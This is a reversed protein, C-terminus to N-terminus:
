SIIAQNSHKDYILERINEMVDKDIKITNYLGDVQNATAVSHKHQLCYISFGHEPHDKLESFVYDGVKLKPRDVFDMIMECLDNLTTEQNPFTPIVHVVKFTNDHYILLDNQHYEFDNFISDEVKQNLNQIRKVAQKLMKKSYIVVHINELNKKM